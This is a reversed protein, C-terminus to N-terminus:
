AEGRGNGTEPHKYFEVFFRVSGTPEMSHPVEPVVIGPDDPTLVVDTGWGDVQYRLRDGMVHVRAWVGPRTSHDTRLSAPVTNETFVPTEKYAVFHDPLEFRECRVCDLPAELRTRRGEENLVWPRSVLPPNHRVRRPHWCGLLAVWHDEEDKRYGAIPRKV